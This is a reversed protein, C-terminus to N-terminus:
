TNSEHDLWADEHGDAHNSERLGAFDFNNTGFPTGARLRELYKVGEPSVKRDWVDRAALRRVMNSVASRSM